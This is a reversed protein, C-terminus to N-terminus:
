PFLVCILPEIFILRKLIEERLSLRVISRLHLSKWDVDWLRAQPMGLAACVCFLLVELGRRFSFQTPWVTFSPTSPVSFPLSAIPSIEGHSQDVSPDFGGNRVGTAHAVLAVMPSGHDTPRSSSLRRNSLLTVVIPVSRLPDFMSRGRYVENREEVEVIVCMEGGLPVPFFASCSATKASRLLQVESEAVTEANASERLQLGARNTTTSLTHCSFEGEDSVFRLTVEVRSEGPKRPWVFLPLFVKVDIGAQNQQIGGDVAPLTSKEAGKEVVVDNGKSSSQAEDPTKETAKDYVAPDALVHPVTGQHSEGAVTFLSQPPSSVSARSFEDKSSIPLPKTVTWTTAFSDGNIAGFNNATQLGSNGMVEKQNASKNKANNNKERDQKGKKRWRAFPGSKPSASVRQSPQLQPSKKEEVMTTISDATLAVAQSRPDESSAGPLNNEHRQVDSCRSRGDEVASLSEKIGNEQKRSAGNSENVDIASQSRPERSARGNVIISDEGREYAQIAGAVDEGKSSAAFSLAAERFEAETKADPSVIAPGADSGILCFAEWERGGASLLTTSLAPDDKRAKTSVPQALPVEERSRSPESRSTELAFMSTAVGDTPFTLKAPSSFNGKGNKNM